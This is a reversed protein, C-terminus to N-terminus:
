FFGLNNFVLYITKDTIKEKVRPKQKNRKYRFKKKSDM